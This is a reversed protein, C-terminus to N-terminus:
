HEGGISKASLRQGISVDKEVRRIDKMISDLIKRRLKARRCNDEIKSKQLKRSEINHLLRYYMQLVDTTSVM